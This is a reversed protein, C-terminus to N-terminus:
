PKALLVSVLRLLVLRFLLIVISSPVRWCRRDEGCLSHVALDILIVQNQDISTYRAPVGPAEGCVAYRRDTVVGM